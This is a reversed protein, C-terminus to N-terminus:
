SDEQWMRSGARCGLALHPAKLPRPPPTPSFLVPCPCPSSPLHCRQHAGAEWVESARSEVGGDQTQAPVHPSAAEGWQEGPAPWAGGWAICSCHQGRRALLMGTGEGEGTPGRKGHSLLLSLLRLM